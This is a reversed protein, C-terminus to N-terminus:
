RRGGDGKGGEEKVGEEQEARSCIYVHYGGRHMSPSRLPVQLSTSAYLMSVTVKVALGRWAQWPIAESKNMDCTNLQKTQKTQKIQTGQM